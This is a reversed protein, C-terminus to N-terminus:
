GNAAEIIKSVEEKRLSAGGVLAGDLNENKLYEEANDGKVSGGYLVSWKVGQEEGLDKIVKAIEGAYDASANKGTGIAWVPEYAIMIEGIEEKNLESVGKRVQGLIFEKAEEKEMEEKEGVCLIVKLGAVVAEKVKKGIIEDNEGLARKESHGIIVYEVGSSKLMYPSIEGTHAGEKKFFSDQAGLETKSKLGRLKDLYLFPPAVVVKVGEFIEQLSDEVAKFIAEAEESSSPNM